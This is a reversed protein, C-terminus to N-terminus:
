KGEMVKLFEQYDVQGDGDADANKFMEELQEDSLKGGFSKMVDKLEKTSLRGSGDKDIANFAELIEHQERKHMLKVFEPFAVTGNKDLDAESIMQQAEEDTIEEGMQTLAKKIDDASITGDGNEDIDNFALKYEAIKEESLEM